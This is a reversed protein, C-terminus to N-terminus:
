FGLCRSVVARIYGVRGRSFRAFGPTGERVRARRRPQSSPGTDLLVLASSLRPVVPTARRATPDRSDTAALM